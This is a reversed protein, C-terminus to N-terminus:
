FIEVHYYSPLVRPKNDKGPIQGTPQDTCICKGAESNTPKPESKGAAKEPIWFHIQPGKLTIM